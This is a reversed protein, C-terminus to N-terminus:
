ALNLKKNLLYRVIMFLALGFLACVILAIGVVLLAVSNGVETLWQTFNTIWLPVVILNVFWNRFVMVVIVSLTQIAFQLGIYAGVSAMFKHENVMQGLSMALYFFLVATAVGVVILLLVEILLIVLGFGLEAYATNLMNGCTQWFEAFSGPAALIAISIATMLAAALLWCTAPILKGLVNQGASVPLTFMLYGENGLLNKYFRSITIVLAIVWLAVMILAYGVGAIATLTGFETLAHSTFRGFISFLLLLAFIPWYYRATGRFEYKLLNKLM